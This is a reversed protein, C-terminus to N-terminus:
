AQEVHAHSVMHAIERKVALNLRTFHPSIPAFVSVSNSKEKCKRIVEVERNIIKQACEWPNYPYFFDRKYNLELGVTHHINM